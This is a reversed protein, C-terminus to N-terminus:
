LEADVESTQVDVTKSDRLLKLASLTIEETESEKKLFFNGYRDVVYSM